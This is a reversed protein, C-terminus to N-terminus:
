LLKTLERIMRPIDNKSILSDALKKNTFDTVLIVFETANVEKLHCIEITNNGCVDEFQNKKTFIKKKPM